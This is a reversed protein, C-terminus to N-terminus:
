AGFAVLTLIFDFPDTTDVTEIVYTVPPTQDTRVLKTMEKPVAAGQAKALTAKTEIRKRYGAGNALPVFFVRTDSYVVMVPTDSGPLITNGPANPDIGQVEGLLADGETSLAQIETFLSM